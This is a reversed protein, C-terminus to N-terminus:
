EWHRSRLGCGLATAATPATGAHVKGGVGASHLGHGGDPGAPTMMETPVTSRSSEALRTLASVRPSPSGPPGEAKTCLGAIAEDGQLGM